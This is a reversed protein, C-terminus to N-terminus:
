RLIVAHCLILGARMATNIAAIRAAQNSHFPFSHLGCSRQMSSIRSAKAGNTSTESEAKKKSQYIM